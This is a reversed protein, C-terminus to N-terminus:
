MVIHGLRCVATFPPVLNKANSKQINFHCSVNKSTFLHHCSKQYPLLQLFFFYISVRFLDVAAATDRQELKEKAM